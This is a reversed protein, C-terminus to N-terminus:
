PTATPIGPNAPRRSGDNVAIAPSGSGRSREGHHQESRPLLAASRAPATHGCSSGGCPHEAAPLLRRDWGAACAAATGM